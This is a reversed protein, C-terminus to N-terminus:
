SRSAQWVGLCRGSSSAGSWRGAGSNGGLRGAGYAARGPQRISVRITGRRDVRGYVGSIDRSFVRGNAIQLPFRFSADCPGATTAVSVSWTGDFTAPVAASIGTLSM